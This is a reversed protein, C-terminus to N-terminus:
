SIALIKNVYKCERLEFQYKYAVDRHYITVINNDFEVNTFWETLLELMRKNTPMLSHLFLKKLQLEFIDM